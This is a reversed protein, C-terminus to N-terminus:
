LKIWEELLPTYKMEMNLWKKPAIVIRKDYQNLWAGWWSFTSNAIINHKCNSMLQMDIYNSMGSNNGVFTYNELMSALNEKCWEIDNSFIYFHPNEVHAKIYEIARQYYDIECIGKYIDFLLYNGRRVHLSVSNTYKINELLSKNTEDLERRFSFIDLIEDRIDAFYDQNAWYGNYYRDDQILLANKDYFSHDKELYEKNRLGLKKFAAQMYRGWLTNASFPCTTRLLQWFTAVPIDVDFVYKLEYVHWKYGKFDKLDLLIEESPHLRKLKYALAYQLMQNGLGGKINVIKM